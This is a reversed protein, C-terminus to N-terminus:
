LQLVLQRPRLPEMLAIMSLRLARCRDAISWMVMHCASRALDALDEVRRELDLLGRPRADRCVVPLNRVLRLPVAEAIVEDVRRWVIRFGSPVNTWRGRKHIMDRGCCACQSVRLGLNRVNSPVASHLGLLCSPNM